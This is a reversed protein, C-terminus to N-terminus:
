QPGSGKACVFGKTVVVVALPTPIDANREFLEPLRKSVDNFTARVAVICWDVIYKDPGGFNKGSGLLSEGVKKPNRQTLQLAPQGRVPRLRHTLVGGTDANHRLQHVLQTVGERARSNDGPKLPFM